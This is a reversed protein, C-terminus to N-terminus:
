YDENMIPTAMYVETVGKVNNYAIVININTKTTGYVVYDEISDTYAYITYMDAGRNETVVNGNVNELIHDSISNKESNSLEGEIDGRLRLTIDAGIDMDKFLKEVKERYYVASELSNDFEMEVIVYQKQTLIAKEVHNEVTVVNIVTRVGEVYKTLTTKNNETYIDYIDNIGLGEAVTKALKEKDEGSMYTNGYFGTAKVTSLTRLYMDNSFATIIDPEKEEEYNVILQIFAFLWLIGCIYILKKRM